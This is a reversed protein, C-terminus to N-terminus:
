ENVECQYEFGGCEPCPMCRPAKGPEFLLWCRGVYACGTKKPDKCRAKRVWTVQAEDFPAGCSGCCLLGIFEGKTRVRPQTLTHTCYPARVKRTAVVKKQREVLVEPAEKKLKKHRRRGLAAYLRSSPIKDLKKDQPTLPKKSSGM